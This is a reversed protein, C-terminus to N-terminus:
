QLKLSWVKAHDYSSTKVPLFNTKLNVICINAGEGEIDVECGSVHYISGPKGRRIIMFELLYSFVPSAQSCAVTLSTLNHESEWCIFM